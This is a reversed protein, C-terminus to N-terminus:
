KRKPGILLNKQTTLIVACVRNELGFSYLLWFDIDLGVLIDQFSCFLMNLFLKQKLVYNERIEMNKICKKDYFKIHKFQVM